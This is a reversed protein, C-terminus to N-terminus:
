FKFLAYTASLSVGNFDFDNEKTYFNYRAALRVRNALVLGVEAGTTYGVKKASERGSTTDIGFDFYSLGGFVRIYPITMSRDDALHKEYGYTFTGIFLKNGNKNASLLELSPTVSGSSPRKNGVPGIGYNIVTSGFADPITSSTPLYFGVSGGFNLDDKSYQANATGALALAAMPVLAIMPKRNM